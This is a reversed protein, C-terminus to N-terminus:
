EAWNHVAAEALPALLARPVGARTALAEAVAALTVVFNSAASAAAHYLARDADPVAFPTMGLAAALGRAHDLARPTTGAVACLAGAIATGLRGAGVVATASLPPTM